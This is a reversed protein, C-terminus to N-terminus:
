RKRTKNTNGKKGLPTKSDRKIRKNENQRKFKIETKESKKNNNLECLKPYKKVLYHASKTVRTDTRTEQMGGHEKYYNTKVTIYNYRIVVNDENYYLISREFDEKDDITVKIKHKYINKCGWMCGVIYYLGSSIGHNMYFPNAVPYIGWLNAGVNQSYQFADRIFTDLKPLSKLKKDGHLYMIDKIDDDLNVIYKNAPFYDTIFNRINKMGVVGVIIKGYKKEDLISNYEIREEENAVFIHILSPDIKNSNLFKLTKEKLTEARKYSPIAIVYDM